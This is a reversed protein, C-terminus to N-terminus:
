LLLGQGALRLLTAHPLDLFPGAYAAIGTRRAIQSFLHLGAEGQVSQMGYCGLRDPDFLCAAYQQGHVLFLAYHPNREIGRFKVLRTVAAVTLEHETCTQVTRRLV